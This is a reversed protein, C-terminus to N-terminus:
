ITMKKLVDCVSEHPLGIGRRSQVVTPNRHEPNECDNATASDARRQHQMLHTADAISGMEPIPSAGIPHYRWPCDHQQDIKVIVQRYNHCCRRLTRECPFKTFHPGYYAETWLGYLM